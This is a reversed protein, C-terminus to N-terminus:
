YSRFLITSIPREVALAARYGSAPSWSHMGWRESASADDADRMADVSSGLLASCELRPLPRQLGEGLAKLYAEKRTWAGLVLDLGGSEPYTSFHAYEASSLIMKAVGDLDHMPRIQEVDVGVERDRAVAIIAIHGSGSMNFRLGRFEPLEPKGEHSPSIQVAAPAMGLYGGLIRRLAAHGLIYAHRDREFVFRAARVTEPADLLAAAATDAYALDLVITWVDVEGIPLDLRM